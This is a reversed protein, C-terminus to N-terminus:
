DEKEVAKKKPAKEDPDETETLSDIYGDKMIVMFLRKKELM